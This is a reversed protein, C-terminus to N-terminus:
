ARDIQFGAYVNGKEACRMDPDGLVRMAVMSIRQGRTSVRGRIGGQGMHKDYAFVEKHTM